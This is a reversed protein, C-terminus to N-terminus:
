GILVSFDSFVVDRVDDAQLIRNIVPILESKMWTMNPDSLERPDIEMLVRTMHDQIRSIRQEVRKEIDERREKPVIIHADFKVTIIEGDENAPMSTEIQGLSIEVLKRPHHRPPNKDFNDILHLPDLIIDEDTSGGCGMLFLGCLMWSALQIRNRKSPLFVMTGAGSDQLLLPHDIARHGDSSLRPPGMVWKRSM